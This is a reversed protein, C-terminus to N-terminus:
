VRTAKIEFPGDIIALATARDANVTFRIVVSIAGTPYFEHNGKSLMARPTGTSSRSIMLTNNKSIDVVFTDTSNDGFSYEGPYLLRQEETLPETPQQLDADGLSELYAVVDASEPGGVRAHHLLTFGHPGRIRQIGPSASVYARVVGLHGLMAFTFLDPRAGSGILLQAIERNGTHSAAGLATEWDGFGWDWAAKALTPHAELLERVRATNAHSAGVMERVLDPNQSPFGPHVASDEQQPPVSGARVAVAPLVPILTTGALFRRRSMTM